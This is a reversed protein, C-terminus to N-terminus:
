VPAHTSALGGISAPPSGHALSVSQAFLSIQPKGADSAHLAWPWHKTEAPAVHM